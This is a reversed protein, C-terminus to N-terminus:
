EVSDCLSTDSWDCDLWESVIDALDGVNVICYSDTSRNIDAVPNGLCVEPLTNISTVPTGYNIPTKQFLVKGSKDNGFEDEHYPVSVIVEDIYGCVVDPTGNNVAFAVVKLGSRVPDGIDFTFLSTGYDWDIDSFVPRSYTGGAYGGSTHHEIGLQLSPAADVFDDKWKVAVYVQDADQLNDIQALIIKANSWTGSTIKLIKNAANDPDVINEVDPIANPDTWGSDPYTELAVKGDDWGYKYFKYFMSNANPDPVGFGDEMWNDAIISFDDLNVTCDGTLDNDLYCIPDNPEEPFIVSAGEPVWLELDDVWGYGGVGYVRADVVLSNRDNADGDDFTWEKGLSTWDQGCYTDYGGASGAYVGDTEYHGWIRIGDGTSDGKKAMMRARIVDGDVLGSIRALYAQSGGTDGRVVKLSKSGTNFEENDSSCEVDGEQGVNLGADEWGYVADPETWELFGGDPINPEIEIGTGPFTISAYGPATIRLDDAYAFEDLAGYCRLQLDINSTTATWTFSQTGWISSTYSENDAPGDNDGWLRIGILSTGHYQLKVAATVQDGINLGTIQAVNLDGRSTGTKTLLVSQAGETFDGSTFIADLGAIALYPQEGDEWGYQLSNFEDAEGLSYYVTVISDAFVLNAAPPNQGVYDGLPVTSSYVDELVPILGANTIAQEAATRTLGSVDPVPITPAEGNGPFFIEANPNSCSIDIDDVYIVNNNDGAFSYIRAQLVFAEKDAAITWTHSHQEWVGGFGAYSDPGSASGGYENIDDATSYIGWIRGKSADGGGKIWISATVTDGAAVGKVWAIYTQPTSSLPNETIKLSKAGGYYQEDTVIASEVNGYTGMAGEAGVASDEWGYTDASLIAPLALMFLAFLYCLKKKM